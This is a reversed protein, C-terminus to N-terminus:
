ASGVQKEVKAILDVVDDAAQLVKAYEAEAEQKRSASNLVVVQKVLEHMQKHRKELQQLDRLHGHQALGASYIWKGLGCDKHSSLQKPDLDERGSLYARLKLRWTQHAMRVLAFDVTSM